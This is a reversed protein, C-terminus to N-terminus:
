EGYKEIFKTKLIKTATGYKKGIGSTIYFLFDEGFDIFVPRKAEQWSRRAHEWTFETKMSEVETTSYKYLDLLETYLRLMLPERYTGKFKAQNLTYIKETSSYDFGNKKLFAKVEPLKVQWDEIILFHSDKKYNASTMEDLITFKWNRLYDEDYTQFNERFSSGHLVWIMKNGYFDERTQIVEASIPSNQFEFIIGDKNVVDAIHYVAEKQIRIESRSTGFTKKWNRHWLTEPESWSDCDKAKTHAWHWINKAGCKAIVENGCHICLGKLQPEAEQKKHDCIAFQM